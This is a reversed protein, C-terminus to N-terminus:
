VGWNEIPAVTVLETEPEEDETEAVPVVTLRVAWENGTVVEVAVVAMGVVIKGEVPVPVVPVPVPVVVPAAVEVVEEEAATEERRAKLLVAPKAM